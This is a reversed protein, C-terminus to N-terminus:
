KRKINIGIYIVLLAMAMAFWQVAYGIHMSAKMNVPQWNRIFGYPSKPNLLITHPYFTRNLYSSLLPIDLSEMRLPWVISEIKNSIFPNKQPAYLFGMIRVKDSVLVIKPLSNRSAGMPLWGRNVLVWQHNENIFPTIVQYGVRHQYFQNDLLISHANDFYGNLQIPYYSYDTLQQAQKLTIPPIKDRMAFKAQLLRKEDARHLQWFGLSIFMPLLLLVIISFTLTPKFYFRM